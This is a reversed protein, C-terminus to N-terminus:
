ESGPAAADALFRDCEQRTAEATQNILLLLEDMRALLRAHRSLQPLFFRRVRQLLRPM